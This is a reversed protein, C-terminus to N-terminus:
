ERYIFAIIYVLLVSQSQMEIQLSVFSFSNHTLGAGSCSQVQILACRGSASHRSWFVCGSNILLHIHLNQYMLIRWIHNNTYLAAICRYWEFLVRARPMLMWLPTRYESWNIRTSEPLRLKHFNGDWVNWFHPRFIHIWGLRQWNVNEMTSFRNSKNKRWNTESKQRKREWLLDENRLFTQLRELRSTYALFRKLM